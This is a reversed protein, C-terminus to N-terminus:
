GLCEVKVRVSIKRGVKPADKLHVYLGNDLTVKYKDQQFMVDAVIGSLVNAEERVELPRALLHIKEGKSHKHNCAVVLDGITSGVKWKRDKKGEANSLALKGSVEGEIVNGLGLFGAVFASQPNTLIDMPTGDRVISGNHLILIRDAIAFAEEQDHTVYIAPAKTKRLIMRLENLLGERLTRDLAGLPEDFMLLRPRIALARALAVRQQEGGSLDTVNRKEFGTLNVLKLSNVVREVIESQRMRRMKLGFAVNDNVNLHPFLAYEQFVLGFDRLHPPTSALDFGDFAIFGSDPSELGAIIRLLTSKGSGSAGLLCVTEGEAINFSIDALLLNGDYSKFLNRVELM